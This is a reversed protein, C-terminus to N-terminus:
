RVDLAQRAQHARRVPRGPRVQVPVPRAPRVQQVLAHVPHVQRAPRVPHAQRVQVQRALHVPQDQRIRRAPHVPHVAAAATCV